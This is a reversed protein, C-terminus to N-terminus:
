AVISAPGSFSLIFTYAGTGSLPSPVLGNYSGTFTAKNAPTLTPVDLSQGVANANWQWADISGGVTFSVNAVRADTIFVFGPSVANSTVRQPRFNVDPSNSVPGLTQVTGLTSITASISFTYREVKLESYKNPELLMLRRDRHAHKRMHHAVIKRVGPHPHYLPSAPNNVAPAAVDAGFISELGGDDDDEGFSGAFSDEGEFQDPEFDSLDGIESGFDADMIGMSAALAPDRMAIERSQKGM